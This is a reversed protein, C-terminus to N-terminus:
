SKGPKKEFLGIFSDGRNKLSCYRFLLYWIDHVRKAIFGMESNPLESYYKKHFINTLNRLLPSYFPFGAYFTKVTSYGHSKMFNEIEGRQYNRYHGIHVEYPRMRGVPVSFIIFRSNANIFKKTIGQWDEIHELFEFATILDFKQKFNSSTIDNTAFGLNKLRYHKKAADIAPKSFDYGTVRAKKFFKALQATKNGVGCGVDAVTNINRSPIEKLVLDLLYAFWRSGSSHSLYKISNESWFHGFFEQNKSDIKAKNKTPM